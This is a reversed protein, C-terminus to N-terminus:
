FAYRLAFQIQRSATTGAMVGFGATNIVYGGSGPAGFDPHNPFNFFESACRSPTAKSSASANPSPCISSRGVTTM